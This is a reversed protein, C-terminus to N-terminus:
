SDSRDRDKEKKTKKHTNIKGRRATQFVADQCPNSGVNEPV